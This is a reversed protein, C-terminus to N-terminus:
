TFSYHCIFSHFFSHQNDSPICAPMQIIEATEGPQGSGSTTLVGSSIGQLVKSFDASQFRELQTSNVTSVSGTFHQRLATGYAIVVVEDVGIIDFELTVNIISGSIPIELTKMGMYSFVLIQANEPLYLQYSGDNGTVTGVTTGKVVVSAGAVPGGTEGGTVVGKISQVQANVNFVNLFVACLFARVIKGM